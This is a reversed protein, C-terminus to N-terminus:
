HYRRQKRFWPDHSRIGGPHLTTPKTKLYPIPVLEENIPDEDYSDYDAEESRIKASRNNAKGGNKKQRKKRSKKVVIEADEDFSVEM